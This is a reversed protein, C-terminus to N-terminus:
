ARGAIPPVPPAIQASAPEVLGIALDQRQVIDWQFDLVEAVGDRFANPVILIGTALALGAVTFLAQM